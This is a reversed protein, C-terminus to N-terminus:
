AQGAMPHPAGAAARRGAERPTLVEDNVVVADFLELPIREFLPSGLGAFVDAPVLRDRTTVIVTPLRQALERTGVINLVAEPGIADAGSLGIRHEADPAVRDPGTLRDLLRRTIGSSPATVVGGPRSELLAQATTVGAEVDAELRAAFRTLVTRPDGERLERELHWLSAYGGLERRLFAVCHLVKDPDEAIKELEHIARLTVGTCGVDRVSVLRVLRAPIKPDTM